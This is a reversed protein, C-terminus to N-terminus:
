AEMEEPTGRLNAKWEHDDNSWGAPQNHVTKNSELRQNLAELGDIIIKVTCLNTSIRAFNFISGPELEFGAVSIDYVRRHSSGRGLVFEVELKIGMTFIDDSTRDRVGTMSNSIKRWWIRRSVGCFILSAENKTLANRTTRTSNQTGVWFFGMIVPIM